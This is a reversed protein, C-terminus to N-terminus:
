EKPKTTMVKIQWKWGDRKERVHAIFISMTLKRFMEKANGLDISQNLQERLLEKKQRYLDACELEQLGFNEGLSIFDLEYDVLFRMKETQTM